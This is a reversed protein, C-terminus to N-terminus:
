ASTGLGGSRGHPPNERLRRARDIRRGILAGVAGFFVLGLLGMDFASLGHATGRATIGVAGFGLGVMFGPLLGVLM